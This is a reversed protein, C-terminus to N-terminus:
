WYTFAIIIWLYQGEINLRDFCIRDILKECFYGDFVSRVIRAVIAINKLNKLSALVLTNNSLKRFIISCRFNSSSQVLKLTGRVHVVKRLQSKSPIHSEQTTASMEQMTGSMEQMTRLM